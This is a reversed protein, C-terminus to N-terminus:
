AKINDRSRDWLVRKKNKVSLNIMHPVAAARHGAYVDEVPQKRERIAKQFNEFHLTVSNRGVGSWREEDPNRPQLFLYDRRPTVSTDIIFAAKPQDFGTLYYFNPEQFYDELDREAGGFLVIVGNRTKEALRQRRSEYEEISAKELAGATMYLVLIAAATLFKM